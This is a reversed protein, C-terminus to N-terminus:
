GIVKKGITHVGMILAMLIFTKVPYMYLCTAIYGLIVLGIATRM